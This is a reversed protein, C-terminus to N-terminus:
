LGVPPASCCEGVPCTTDPQGCYMGSNCCYMGGTTHCLVDGQCDPTAPPAVDSSASASVCVLACTVAVILAKMARNLTKM